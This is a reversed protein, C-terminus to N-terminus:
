RRMLWQDTAHDLIEPVRRASGPPAPQALHQLCQRLNQEPTQNDLAPAGTQKSLKKGARDALVTVHAYSPPELALLQQLWRQRHTSELLDAGRVIHTFNPKADDIAAALQYAYLGDRRKVIFDKLATETPAPQEGMSRDRFGELREPAIRIRLSHPTEPRINHDRCHQGCCGSADLTARTCLCRFLWGSSTLRDLASDYLPSSHSQYLIPGDWILSHATLTETIADISGAVARPPDIDDIRLQWQGNHHRADLFSALAAVLSGSHLPGTPSPAFRGRYANSDADAPSDNL